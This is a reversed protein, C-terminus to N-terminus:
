SRSARRRRRDRGPRYVASDVVLGARNTLGFRALGFQIRRYLWTEPRGRRLRRMVTGGWWVTLGCMMAMLTPVMAIHHLLVAGVVGPLVGMALGVSAMLVVERGTMGRFVVPANNLRSPVFAITIKDAM